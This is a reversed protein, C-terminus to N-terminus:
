FRFYLFPNYSSDVLYAICVLTAAISGVAAIGRAAAYKETLRYYLKKPLPTSALVLIAFFVLNRVLNYVDLGNAFGVVGVGFMSGLYVMGASLDEFVFLLWGFLVFFLTYIRSVVVPARELLKLLFLKEIMLLAFYYLGWLIYNWSAGHWFGTLFWVVFINRINILKSCRNGGLPIYVYERFWTGLSIHWRRWFETISKSIYPYNFNELFRFGIMKGLGIAMDSYGSFDFYIQFSYCIMGIWAGVVTREDAPIDRFYEWLQGATNAFLVKKCMGAIFTRTGEAFLPISHERETLQDDVDKYRVIPGAILQPYLTVYAGFAAINHQARTDLRYVDIVYSLAQFTYFSIGIPLELGLLPLGSLGPILRLNTVFFDYYKFFGLIALNIVVALILCLKASKKNQKKLNNEVLLGFIYDVIITFVMLFMYIPEGWGYFILSVALLVINRAKFPVIFYLLLTVTLYLLLFELSSFVM